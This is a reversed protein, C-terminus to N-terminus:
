ARGSVGSRRRRAPQVPLTESGRPRRSAARGAAPVAANRKARLGRLSGFHLMGNRGQAAAFIQTGAQHQKPPFTEVLPFGREFERAGHASVAWSVAFACGLLAVRRM